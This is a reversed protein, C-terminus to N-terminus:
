IKLKSTHFCKITKNFHKSFGRKLIITAANLFGGPDLFSIGFGAVFMKSNKVMMEPKCFL